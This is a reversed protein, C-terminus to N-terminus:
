RTTAGPACIPPKSLSTGIKANPSFNRGGMGPRDSIPYQPRAVLACVESGRKVPCVWIPVVASVGNIRPCARHSQHSALCTM